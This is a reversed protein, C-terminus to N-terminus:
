LSFGKEGISLVERIYELYDAFTEAEDCERDCDCPAGHFTKLASGNAAFSIDCEVANASTSMYKDFEKISNVM